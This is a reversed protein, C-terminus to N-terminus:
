FSASTSLNLVTATMTGMRLVCMLSTPVCCVFVCLMCVFVLIYPLMNQTAHKLLSGTFQSHFCVNKASKDIVAKNELNLAILGNM